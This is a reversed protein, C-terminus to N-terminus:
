QGHDEDGGVDSGVFELFDFAGEGVERDGSEGGGIGSPGSVFGFVGDGEVALIDKDGERDSRFDFDGAEFIEGFVYDLFDLGGGVGSLRAVAFDEDFLEDAGESDSRAFAVM